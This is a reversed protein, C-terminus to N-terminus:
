IRHKKLTLHSVSAMAIDIYIYVHMSICVYVYVYMCIRPYYETKLRWDFPIHKVANIPPSKKKLLIGKEWTICTYLRTNHAHMCVYNVSVNTQSIKRVHM